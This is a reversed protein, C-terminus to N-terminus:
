QPMPEKNIRCNPIVYRRRLVMRPLIPSSGIAICRGYSTSIGSPNPGIPSSLCFLTCIACRRMITRPSAGVHRTEPLSMPCSRRAAAGGTIHRAELECGASRFAVIRRESGYNRLRKVSRDINSDNTVVAGGDGSAASGSVQNPLAATGAADAYSM